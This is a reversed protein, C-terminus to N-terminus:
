LADIINPNDPPGQLRSRNRLRDFLMYGGIILVVAGSGRFVLRSTTMPLVVLIIGAVATLLPLFLSAHLSRIYIIDQLGQILLLIGVLRGLWVALGLPHTVMWIGALGFIAAGLVRSVISGPVAVAWIGLGVAVAILLWGLIRVLITTASDPCVLLVVGLIMLVVPTILLKVLSMFDTKNM